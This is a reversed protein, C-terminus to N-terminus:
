VDAAGVGLSGQRDRDDVRNLDVRAAGGGHRFQELREADGFRGRDGLDVVARLQRAAVDGGDIQAADARAAREREEVAAAHRRVRDRHGLVAHRGERHVDVGHGAGQDLADLHQTVAGGGDVSGVGGSAHDVVPDGTGVGAALQSQPARHGLVAPRVLDAAGVGVAELGTAGVDSVREIVEMAVRKGGRLPTERPVRVLAGAAIQRRRPVPEGQNVGVPRGDAVIIEPVRVANVM